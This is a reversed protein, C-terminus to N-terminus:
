QVICLCVFVCVCVPTYLTVCFGKSLIIQYCFGKQCPLVLLLLLFCEGLAVVDFKHSKALVSGDASLLDCRYHWVQQETADMGSAHHVQLSGNELLKTVGSGGAPEDAIVSSGLKWVITSNSNEERTEVLPCELVTRFEDGLQYFVTEAKRADVAEFIVAALLCWVLVRHACIEMAAVGGDGAAAAASVRATPRIRTRRTGM